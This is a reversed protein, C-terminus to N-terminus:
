ANKEYEKKVTLITLLAALQKKKKKVVNTDKPLNAKFNLEMKALEDRLVQEQKALEAVTKNQLEKVTKKM